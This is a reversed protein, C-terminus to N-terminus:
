NSAAKQMVADQEWAEFEEKSMDEPYFRAGLPKDGYQEIFPKDGDLRDWPGYNIEAFRRQKPDEIGALLEEKDGWAQQWFLGDMIKSAEILIPIMKKQNESLHGLDATLSVPAYIDYRSPAPDSQAAEPPAESASATEAPAEAPSPTAARECATIILGFLLIAFIMRATGSNM